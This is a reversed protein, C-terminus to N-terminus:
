LKEVGLVPGLPALSATWRRAVELGAEKLHGSPSTSRLIDMAHFSTSEILQESSIFNEKFNEIASRALPALPPLPDGLLRRVLVTRALVGSDIAALDAKVHGVAALAQPTLDQPRVGLGVLLEIAAAAREVARTGLAIDALSALPREGSAPPQDLIRPFLPRVRGLSALAEGDETEFVDLGPRLVAFPNKTLLTSALRGLKGVLSTGLRHLTVMPVSRVAAVEREADGHALFELALDLRAAVRELAAKIAEDDSPEVRDASLVRNCLAVLAQHAEAAEERTRLGGVARAFPTKGTLREVMATPLRWHVEAEAQWPSRLGQAVTEDIHVSDPNLDKYVALAESFEIFGLDAMRGSRWRYATEEMEADSEARVGVLLRRMMAPSHRYLSDLLRQTVRVEEPEGLLDLVFLRDPSPWLVGAPQDPAEELSLDYIHMRRRLLFALLEVDIGQAWRGLTEPPAEVLAALWHHSKDMSIRDRDWISFDLVTQVQKPTGHVLIDMAEPLGLEHIVYFFEDPPLARITAAPDRSAFIEDARRARLGRAVSARYASLAVATDADEPKSTVDASHWPRNLIKVM